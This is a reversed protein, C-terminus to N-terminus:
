KEPDCGAGRGADEDDALHLLGGVRQAGRADGAGQPGPEGVEGRGDAVEAVLHLDGHELPFSFQACGQTQVVITDCLRLRVGQDGGFRYAVMCDASILRRKRAYKSLLPCVTTGDADSIESSGVSSSTGAPMTGSFGYKRSSCVGGHFRAVLMWFHTRVGSM